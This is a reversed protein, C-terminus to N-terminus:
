AFSRRPKRRTIGRFPIGPIWLAMKFTWKIILFAIKIAFFSSIILYKMSICIIRLSFRFLKFFLILMKIAAYVMIYTLSLVALIVAFIFIKKFIDM